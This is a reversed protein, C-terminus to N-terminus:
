ESGSASKRYTHNTKSYILHWIVYLMAVGAMAAGYIFVNLVTEPTSDYLFLTSSSGFLIGLELAIFLTGSGIGRRHIPSLDATWAFLTPSNIGTAVGFIFSAATYTFEGRSYATLVMALMLFTIGILLAQRRGIRDSLKGALLRVIITSIVYYVFYWGKNEIGLYGSMDPTVVFVLGTCTVTLFMVVAAPFVQKEFVDSKRIIFTELTINVPSPHTEKVTAIIILAGLALLGSAFFLGNLGVWQAVPSGLFQGVGIGLSIATGFVGMGQGRKHSPLIDTVMATAGTPLFGTSFGHFFRLMLFFAVSGSIPYLFTVLIAVSTGVYMTSKRGSIDAMKGSFPRALAATITFLAIILGKYEAGNLRTIFTNLEPIILNFSTMFLFMSLSIAWFNKSYGM